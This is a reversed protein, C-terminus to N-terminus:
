SSAKQLAARFKSRVIRADHNMEALKKAKTGLRMRLGPNGMLERLAAVINDVGMDTGVYAWEERIAYDVQAVSAPGYVFIPVGTLLYEPVKTPMSYRIFSITNEDFNVPLVLLNAECLTRFYQEGHPIPDLISIAPHVALRDRVPDTMFRPSYIELAVDRGDDALLGIARCIEALSDLQAYPFISGAYVIRFPKESAINTRSYKNWSATDITNQFSAFSVGFERGYAECMLPCIGMRESAVGILHEFLANMRRQRLTSFLGKSYITSRWDDMIHVTLPVQWRHRVREVLDMMANNGLPSYVIDPRFDDIWAILDDTLRITEPISDNGFLLDRVWQFLRRPISPKRVTAASEGEFVNITPSSRRIGNFLWGPVM